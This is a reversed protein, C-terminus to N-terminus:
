LLPLQEGPAPPPRFQRIDRQWSRANLGHRACARRFRAALLEAYRGQGTMRTGFEAQYIRGGRCERMLRLVREARHPAHARLWEEFLAAIELPLRLLIYNAWRAGAGAATELIRELEHDNLGPIMPSALVAVPVGGESLRRLTEIRRAPTAARPELTRALGRDLTTVSVCVQALGRAAMPALIDLDRLVLASKTIVGVPHSFAALVQLIQRTLALRREVPQYPDTNAGVALTTPRYGPRRLERELLEPANPKHFLKTEFDLGPSLGLYAHTPRAFCYVCGHECGRYPNISRDFPVDPSQNRTIITRATDVLLTTRLPPPEDDDADSHGSHDGNLSDPAWGPWGDDVPERTLPEFRGTRNSLAGRGKVPRDPPPTDM